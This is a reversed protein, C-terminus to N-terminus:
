FLTNSPQQRQPQQQQRQPQPQQQTPATGPAGPPIPEVLPGGDVPQVANPDPAQDLDIGGLAPTEAFEAYVWDDNERVVGEPALREEQPPKKALAVRMYDIWIPLAVTAGFERGGLSKPDDYGM